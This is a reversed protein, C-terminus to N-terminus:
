KILERFRVADKLLRDHYEPLYELIFSSNSNHVKLIEAVKQFDLDCHINKEQHSKFLPLHQKKLAIVRNSGHFVRISDKYEIIERIVEAQGVLRHSFDYCITHNYQNKCFDFIGELGGFIRKKSEFTEWCLSINKEKLVPTIKSDLIEIIDNLRGFSPHVVLIKCNLLDCLKVTKYFVSLFEEFITLKAHAMHVGLVNINVKEIGDTINKLDIQLFLDPQYFAVEIGDLEKYCVISKQWDFQYRDPYRARIGIKMNGGRNEM